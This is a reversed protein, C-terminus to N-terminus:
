RFLKILVIFDFRWVVAMEERTSAASKLSFITTVAKLNFTCFAALCITL